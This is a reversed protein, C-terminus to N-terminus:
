VDELPTDSHLITILLLKDKNISLYKSFSNKTFFNSFKDDTEILSGFSFIEM